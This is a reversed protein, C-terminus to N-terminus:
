KKVFGLDIIDKLHPNNTPGLAYEYGEEGVFEFQSLYAEYDQVKKQIQLERVIKDEDSVIKVTYPAVSIEFPNKVFTHGDIKVIVQLLM